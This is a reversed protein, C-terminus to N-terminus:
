RRRFCRGFRRSGLGLFMPLMHPLSLLLRVEETAEGPGIDLGDDEAELEADENDFDVDEVNDDESDSPSM